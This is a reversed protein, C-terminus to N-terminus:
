DQFRISPRSLFTLIGAILALVVAFNHPAGLLGAVWLVIWGVVLAILIDVIVRM